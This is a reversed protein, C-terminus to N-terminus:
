SAKATKITDTGRMEAEHSAWDVKWDEPRTKTHVTAIRELWPSADELGLANGRGM